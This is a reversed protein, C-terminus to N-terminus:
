SLNVFRNCIKKDNALSGCIGLYFGNAIKDLILEFFVTPLNREPVFTVLMCFPNQDIVHVHYNMYHLRLGPLKVLQFFQPAICWQNFMIFSLGVLINVGDARKELRTKDWGPKKFTLKLDNYFM